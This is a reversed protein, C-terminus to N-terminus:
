SLFAKEIKYITVLSLNEKGKVIKNIELNKKM